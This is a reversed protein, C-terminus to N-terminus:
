TLMAIGRKQGFLNGYMEAKSSLYISMGLFAGVLIKTSSVETIKNLWAEMSDNASCSTTTGM